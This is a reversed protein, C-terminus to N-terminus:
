KANLELGDLIVGAPSQLRLSLSHPGPNLNTELYYNLFWDPQITVKRWPQQDIQYEMAVPTHGLRFLVAAITGHFQFRWEVNGPPAKLAAGTPKFFTLPTQDGPGATRATAASLFSANKLPAPNAPPKPKNSFDIAKLISAAIQAHGVNSPHCGDSLTAANSDAVPYKYIKNLDLITRRTNEESCKASRALFVAPIQAAALEHFIQEIAPNSLEPAFGDLAGTEVIVLDPKWPIATHKLLLLTTFSHAGGFCLDYTEVKTQFRRELASKVIPLFRQTAGAGCTISTGLFAVRRPAQAPLILGTLAFCFWLVGSQM